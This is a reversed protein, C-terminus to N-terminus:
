IMVMRNAKITNMFELQSIHNLNRGLALILTKKVDNKIANSQIIQKLSIVGTNEQDILLFLSLLSKETQDRWIKQSHTLDTKIKLPQSSNPKQLPTDHLYDFINKGYKYLNLSVVKAAKVKATYCENIKSDKSSLLRDVIPLDFYQKKKQIIDTAIDITPQFSFLSKNAPRNTSIGKKYLYNHVNDISNSRSKNALTLSRDSISPKFSCTKVLIENDDMKKTEIRQMRSNFHEIVSKSMANLNQSAKSYIPLCNSIRKEDKYPELLKMSKSQKEKIKKM